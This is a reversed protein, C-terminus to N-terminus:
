TDFRITICLSSNLSVELVGLFVRQVVLGEYSKVVVTL